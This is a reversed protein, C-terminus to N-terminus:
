VLIFLLIKFVCFMSRATVLSSLQSQMVAIEGDRQNLMAQLCEVLPLSGSPERAPPIAVSSSMLIQNNASSSSGSSSSSRSCVSGVNREVSSVM